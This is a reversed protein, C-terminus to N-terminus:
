RWPDTRPARGARLHRPLVGRPDRGDAGADDLRQAGRAQPVGPVGNSVAEVGSLAVAGSSFARLLMLITLTATGEALEQAEESLTDLPIPGLDRYFVRYLGVGILLMLMVIYVYTPPAFLSGSEKLGRLNAVTM